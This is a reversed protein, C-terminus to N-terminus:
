DDDKNTLRGYYGITSYGLRRYVREGLDSAQLIVETMGLEGALNTLTTVIQGGLGRGRSDERTGVYYLGGRGAELTLMGCSAGDGAVAMFARPGLWMPHEVFRSTVEPPLSFCSSIVAAAAALLDANTEDIITAGGEGTLPPRVSMIPTPTGAPAFGVPELAVALRDIAGQPCLVNWKKSGDLDSLVERLQEDNANEGALIGRLHVDAVETGMDHVSFGDYDTFTGGIEDMRRRVTAVLQEHAECVRTM